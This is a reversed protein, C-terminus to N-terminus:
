PAIVSKLPLVFSISCGRPVLNEVSIKGGHAEVITKCVSLGMGLGNPKTTFFANFVEGIHEAPVGPGDDRVAVKISKERVSSLVVRIDGGASESPRIADIANTLLNMIVQQLQVPDAEVPPLNPASEITIRATVDLAASRTLPLLGNVLEDLQVREKQAPHKQLLTRLRRMIEGARVDDKVIDQLIERIERVDPNGTEMFRLAAEANALIASLPQSLEHAISGVLEGMTTVRAVHEFKASLSEVEATREAVRAELEENTEELFAEARRQATIDRVMTHVYLVRGGKSLLPFHDGLFVREEVAPAATVGRVEHGRVPEGSDIVRQFMPVIQDALHPLVEHITHGLHEELSKGNIDCLRQNIRVYRHQTDTVCLGIPAREYLHVLELEESSGENVYPRM